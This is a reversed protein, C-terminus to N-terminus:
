RQRLVLRTQELIKTMSAELRDFRTEIKELYAELTQFKEVTRIGLNKVDSTLTAGWWISAALSTIALISLLRISTLIGKVQTSIERIDGRISVEVKHFDEGLTKLDENLTETLVLM